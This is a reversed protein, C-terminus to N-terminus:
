KPGAALDQRNRRRRCAARRCRCRNVPGRRKDRRNGRKRRWRNDRKWRLRGISRPRRRRRGGNDRKRRLRGISRPRRRRRGGAPSHRKAALGPRAERVLPPRPQGEKAVPGQRALSLRRQGGQCVRRPFRAPQEAAKAGPRSRVAVAVPPVEPPRAQEPEQAAGLDLQAAQRDM